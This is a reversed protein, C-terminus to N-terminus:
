DGATMGLSRRLQGSSGFEVVGNIKQVSLHIIRGTALNKVAYAVYKGAVAGWGAFPIMAGFSLGANLADGEITYLVGNAFDAFEGFLPVLGLASM